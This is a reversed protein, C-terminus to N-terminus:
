DSVSNDRFYSVHLPCPYVLVKVLPQYGGPRHHHDQGQGRDKHDDTDNQKHYPPINMQKRIRNTGLTRILCKKELFAFKYNLASKMIM